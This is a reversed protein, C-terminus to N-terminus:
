VLKIEKISDKAAENKFAEGKMFGHVYTEGVLKYAGGDNPRLVYPVGGGL